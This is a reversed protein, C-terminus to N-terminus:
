DEKVKTTKKIPAKAEDDAAEEAEEEVKPVPHTVLYRLVEDTINLAKELKGISEGPLEVEYFVYVAFDEGAIPYALKRKGWVDTTVTKGKVQDILSEVKKLPKDLDIELDPHLLLVMEYQNMQM